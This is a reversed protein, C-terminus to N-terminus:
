KCAQPKTFFCLSLFISRYLRTSALHILSTSWSGVASSSLSPILRLLLIEWTKALALFPFLFSLRNKDGKASVSIWGKMQLTAATETSISADSPCRRFYPRSAMIDYSPPSLSSASMLEICEFLNCKDYCFTLSISLLRIWLLVTM